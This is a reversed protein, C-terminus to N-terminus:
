ATNRQENKTYHALKIEPLRIESLFGTLTHGNKRLWLRSGSYNPLIDELGSWFRRDHGDKKMHYFEHAVVYEYVNDPAMILRWNLSIRRKESCSGWRSRMDKLRVVSPEVGLIGSWKRCCKKAFDESETIYWSALYLRASSICDTRIRIKGTGPVYTCGREPNDPGALLELALTKGRFPIKSGDRVVPLTEKRELYIAHHKEIWNRNEMIFSRIKKESCSAPVSLRLGDVGSRLALRRSRPSRWAILEVGPFVEVVVAGTGPIM